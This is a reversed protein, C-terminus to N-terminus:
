SGAAHDIREPSIVGCAIRDGSAGSPQSELDDAQAHVVVSRGLIGNPGSDLTMESDSVDIVARGDADAVINGLDGVHHEDNSDTPAGPAFHEGAAKGSNSCDVNQHIHFGHRGETLGTLQGSIEVQGADQLFRVEGNVGSGDTAAVLASAAAAPTTGADGGAACASLSVGLAVLIPPLILTHHLRTM